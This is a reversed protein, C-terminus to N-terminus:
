EVVPVPKLASWPYAVTTALADYSGTAFVGPGRRSAVIRFPNRPLNKATWRGDIATSASSWAYFALADGFLRFGDQWIAVAAPAPGIPTETDDVFSIAIPPAPERLESPPLDDMSGRLIKVSSAAGPHRVMIVSGELQKSIRVVGEANAIGRWTIQMATNIAAVEAGAAPAGGRLLLRLPVASSATRTMPVDIVTGETGETVVASVPASVEYGSASARVEVAGPPVAPLITLPKETTRYARVDSSKRGSEADVATSRLAIEAGAIPTGDDADHVRVALRTRPVRIDFTRSEHFSTVTRFPPVDPSEFLVTDIFVHSQPRWITLAYDGREDTKISMPKNPQMLRIEAEARVGGFFVTGSIRIPELPISVTADGNSLDARAGTIFDGITLVVNVFPSRLREVKYSQGPQVALKKLVQKSADSVELTMAPAVTDEPLAAIDVTLTPLLQLTPHLVLVDRRRATADGDVVKFDDSDVTLQVSGGALGYWAALLTQEDGAVVLPDHRGATDTVVPSIRATRPEAPRPIFALVDVGDGARKFSLDVTGHPPVTAPRSISVARGAADYLVAIVPGAPVTARRGSLHRQFARLGRPPATLSYLVVHEGPALLLDSPLVAAGAPGLSRLKSPADALVDVIYPTIDAGSEVWAVTPKEITVKQGCPVSWQRNGSEFQATCNASAPDASLTVEAGSLGHLSFAILLLAQAGRSILLRETNRLLWGLTCRSM